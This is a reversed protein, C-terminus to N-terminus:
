DEDPNPFAKVVALPNLVGHRRGSHPSVRLTFLAIAEPSHLENTYSKCEAIAAEPEGIRRVLRM